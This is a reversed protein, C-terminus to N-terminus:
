QRETQSRADNNFPRAEDHLWEILCRVNPRALHEEPCVIYHCPETRLGIDFPRVLRGARVDASAIPGSALAVGQGEIAAHLLVNIDEVVIGTDADVDSAEAMELWQRWHARTTEHLLTYHKLDAPARLPSNGELLSPSCVPFEVVSFLLESHLSGWRGHGYRIALDVGDNQFSVLRPTTSVHIEIGYRTQFQTIRPVLWRAAISPVTSLTLMDGTTDKRVLNVGANLEDFAKRTHLALSRGFATLELGRAQRIFLQRGVFQELKQVQQSIAGHTVFLERAAVSFSLHRSAADFARLSNLPPLTSM